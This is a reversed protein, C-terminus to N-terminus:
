RSRCSMVVYMLATQSQYPSIKVDGAHRKKALNNMLNNTRERFLDEGNLTLARLPTPSVFYCFRYRVRM